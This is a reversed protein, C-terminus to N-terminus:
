ALQAESSHIHLRQGPPVHVALMEKLIITETQESLMLVGSIITKRLVLENNLRHLLNDSMPVFFYNALLLGYLTTILAIAMAPGIISTSDKNMGNLLGILGIVTGIMGFAPPYKSLTKLIEVHHLHTENRQELDSVMITEITEQDMGNEILRLGDGLFPHYSSRDKLTSSLARPNRAMEKSIAILDNITKVTNSSPNSFVKICIKLIKAVDAIGYTIIGAALTGGLVIALGAFNYLMLHDTIAETIGYYIVFLGLVAGIITSRM